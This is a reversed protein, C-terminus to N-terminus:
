PKVDAITEGAVTVADVRADFFAILGKIRASEHVPDPYSWAIDKFVRGGVEASWYRAEGKYPCRTRRDSPRLWEMRVDAEALYYRTPLGTEFLFRAGRSAAVTEGGLVVTVPRTSDLIDVRVHPDRAHVYVEEDEELWAEMREWYFAMYDRIERAAPVPDEYSWVANEATEGGASVTWYSASGKYPCRTRHDTRVLVDPRVDDKPFYYVPVLGRERLLMVRPSDAVTEGGLLARVRKPSPEFTFPRSGGASTENM